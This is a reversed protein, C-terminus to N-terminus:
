DLTRAVLSLAPLLTQNSESFDQHSRAPSNCYRPPPRQFFRNLICRYANRIRSIVPLPGPSIKISQQRWLQVLDPKIARVILCSGVNAKQEGVIPPTQTLARRCQPPVLLRLGKNTKNRRTIRRRARISMAVGPDAETGKNEHVHKSEQGFLEYSKRRQVQTEGFNVIKEM